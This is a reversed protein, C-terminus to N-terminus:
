EETIFFRTTVGMVDHSLGSNGTSSIHQVTDFTYLSSSEVWPGVRMKRNKKEGLSDVPALQGRLGDWVWSKNKADVELPRLLVDAWDWSSHPPRPTYFSVSSIRSGMKVLSLIIVSGKLWRLNNFDANEYSLVGAANLSCCPNQKWLVRYIQNFEGVFLQTM